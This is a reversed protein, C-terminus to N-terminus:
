YNFGLTITTGSPGTQIDFHDALKKAGLIGRGLGTRSRYEGALIVDIQAIGPGQDQAIIM